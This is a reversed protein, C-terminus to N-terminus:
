SNTTPPISDFLHQRQELGKPTQIPNRYLIKVHIIMLNRRFKLAADNHILDDLGCFQGYGGQRSMLSRGLNRVGSFTDRFEVEDDLCRSRYNVIQGIVHALNLLNM